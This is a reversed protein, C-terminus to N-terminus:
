IEPLKAVISIGAKVDDGPKVEIGLSPLSPLILDVQSGFRIMGLREGRSIEQSEEFYLVIQRVLRSAIQVVGVKFRGNDIVTLARENRIVADKKKLSIFSGKIHHILFVKGEIPARNVHVHLFNQSIGILYGESLLFDSQIFDDLSFKRGKKESNPILGKDIRKVYSVKGDVPSLISNKDGPPIREPDRFFRWLL